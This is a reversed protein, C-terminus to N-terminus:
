RRPRALSLWRPYNRVLGWAVTVSGAAGLTLKGPRALLERGARWNRWMWVVAVPLALVFLLNEQAAKAVDGHALAALAHTGGCAPCYMGTSARIPCPPLLRTGGPGGSLVSYVLVVAVAVPLSAPIGPPTRPVDATEAM